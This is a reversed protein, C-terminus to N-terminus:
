FINEYDEGERKQIHLRKAHIRKSTMLFLVIMGLMGASLVAIGERQGLVLASGYAIPGLTQGLSEFMSYIGMAKGEGFKRCEPIQEFYTYQCTYAFSIVLSLIIVGAIVSVTNPYIAFGGMNVAMAFSAFIVSRKAGISQILCKSLCPGIYLVLLGCALYIQGIQVENVGLREMYLPFFYERYSLAIMFPILILLFFGRIRRGFLFKMTDTVRRRCRKRPIANKAFLVIVFGLALFIVGVLYVLKYSGVSLLLSGIGVGITVGSLVGAAIDAFATETLHNSSGMSATTNATVYIVGMGIGIWSKGILIGIYGSALLCTMFGTMQAIFGMCMTKKVGIRQTLSGGIMSFVAALFLQMSMPLAVAVERAIPLDDHYVRDCLIVIFADQLSDTMYSIFVVIRLPIQHIINWQERPIRARRELFAILFLVELLLMVVVAASNFVTCVVDFLLHRNKATIRDFSTGVELEAIVQGKSDTIPLLTFVWAGYSSMDDAVVIETNETLARTYENDGYIYIPYGCPTTDEYDMLCRIYGGDADYILYYYYIEKEYSEDILRDLPNKIHMYTDSHYDTCNNVTKLQEVDIEQRLIEAFMSMNQIMMDSQSSMMQTLTTYSVTMSVSVAAGVVMIVRFMNSKDQKQKFFRIFRRVVSVILVVAAFIGMIWLILIKIYNENEAM